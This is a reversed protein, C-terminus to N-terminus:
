KQFNAAYIRHIKRNFLTSKELILGNKEAVRKSPHNDEQILSIIRPLRLIKNGYELCMKSAETALGKNWYQRVFLYGLEIEEKGNINEHLVLGCQGVFALSEKLHCAWLGFGFKGYSDLTNQIWFKTENITLTKPYYQMAIKDSFIMQLNEIDNMTMLRLVMRDTTIIPNFIM